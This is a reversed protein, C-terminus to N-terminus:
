SEGVRAASNGTSRGIGRGIVKSSKKGGSAARRLYDQFIVATIIGSVVIFSFSQPTNQSFWTPNAPFTKATFSLAFDWLL